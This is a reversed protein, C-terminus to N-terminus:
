GASAIVLDIVCVACSVCQLGVSHLVKVWTRDLARILENFVNWCNATILTNTNRQVMKGGMWTKYGLSYGAFYTISWPSMAPVLCLLVHRRHCNLPVVIEMTIILINVKHWRLWVRSLSVIGLQLMPCTWAHTCTHTLLLMFPLTSLFLFLHHEFYKPSSLYLKLTNM